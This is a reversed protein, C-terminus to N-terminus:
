ALGWERECEELTFSEDKEPDNLYREYLQQCFVDDADEDANLGQLYALLYGMKYEPTSAVLSIVKERVSM